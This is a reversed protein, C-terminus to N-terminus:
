PVGLILKIEDLALADELKSFEVRHLKSYAWALLRRDDDLQDKRGEAYADNQADDTTM